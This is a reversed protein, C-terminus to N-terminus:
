AEEGSGPTTLVPLSRRAHRSDAASGGASGHGSPGHPRGRRHPLDEHQRLGRGFQAFTSGEPRDIRRISVEVGVTSRRGTGPVRLEGLDRVDAGRNEAWRGGSARGYGLPVSVTGPRVTPNEVAPLQIKGAPGELELWDGTVAGLGGLDGPAVEAWSGWMVTSVPEPLQQLWPRNAASGDGLAVSEFPLVVFRGAPGASGEGHPAAEFQGETSPDLLDQEEVGSRDALAATRERRPVSATAAVEGLDVFGRGIVARRRLGAGDSDVQPVEELLADVTQDLLKPGGDLSWPAADPRTALERGLTLAVDTPHLTDHLPRVAPAGVSWVHRPDFSEARSLTWRELQAHVPLVLDARDTTASPQTSLAVVHTSEILESLAARDDAGYLPDVDLCILVEVEGARLRGLLDPWAGAEVAARGAGDARPIPLQPAPQSLLRPARGEAVLALNLEAVAEVTAVAGSSEGGGVWQAGALVVPSEAESLEEM